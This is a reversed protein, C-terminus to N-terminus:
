HSLYKIVVLTSRSEEAMLIACLRTPGLFWVGCIVRGLFIKIGRQSTKTRLFLFFKFFFKIKAIKFNYDKKFDKASFCELSIFM